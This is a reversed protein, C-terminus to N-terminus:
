PVTIEGEALVAPNKNKISSEKYVVHIRGNKLEVGEPPRLPIKFTRHNHTTYVSFGRGVGVELPEGSQPIFTVILDGFVSRNGQRNIKLSIGAPAKPTAPALLKLESLSATASLDGHRLIVPISLSFKTIMRLKLEGEPIALQEVDAGTDPPPLAEIVLRSLYEGPELNRPKRVSLRVKQSTGAPVTIQRPSYRIFKDAFRDEPRTEKAREMKGDKNMRNNKFYVRYTTPNPSNNNVTAEARRTRGEFVVRHPSIGFQAYAPKWSGELLLFALIFLLPVVQIGLKRFNGRNAMTQASEKTSLVFISFLYL